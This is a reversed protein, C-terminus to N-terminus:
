YERLFQWFFNPCANQGGGGKLAIGLNVRKETPHPKGLICAACCNVQTLKPEPTFIHGFFDSVTEGWIQTNQFQRDQDVLFDEFSDISMKKFSDLLNESVYTLIKWAINFFIM